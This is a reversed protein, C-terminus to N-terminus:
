TVIFKNLLVRTCLQSILLEALLDLAAILILRNIIIIVGMQDGDGLHGGFVFLFMFVFLISFRIWFSLFLLVRSLYM